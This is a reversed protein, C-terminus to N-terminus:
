MGQKVSDLYYGTVSGVQIYDFVYLDRKNIATSVASTGFIDSAWTVTHTAGSGGQEFLLKVQLNCNDSPIPNTFKIIQSTSTAADYYFFNGNELNCTISGGSATVTVPKDYKSGYANVGSLVATTSGNQFQLLDATQSTNSQIRITEGTTNINNKYIVGGFIRQAPDCYIGDLPDIFIYNIGTILSDGTNNHKFLKGRANAETDGSVFTNGVASIQTSNTGCLIPNNTDVTGDFTAWSNSGIDFRNGVIALGTSSGFYIGVKSFNLFDNDRLSASKAQGDTDYYNHTCTDFVNSDIVPKVVRSTGSVAPHFIGYYCKKFTCERIVPNEQDGNSGAANFRIGYQPTSGAASNEIWLRETKFDDVNGAIDIGSGAANSCMIQFDSLRVSVTGNVYIAKDTGDYTFITEKTSENDKSVIGHIHNSKNATFANLSFSGSPCFVEYIGANCAATLYTLNNAASATTAFGWLAPNIVKVYLPNLTVDTTTFGDFVLSDHAILNGQISLTAGSKVFKGARSVEVTINSPITTNTGVTTSSRIELIANNSAIATVAAGLDAYDSVDYRSGDRNGIYINDYTKYPSGSSTNVVFKYWGDGYCTYRGLSDLTIPSSAGNALVSTKNKTTWVDKGNTTGASYCYVKGGSLPNGSSDHFGNVLFDIQTATNAPYASSIFFILGSLALTIIISIKLSKIM